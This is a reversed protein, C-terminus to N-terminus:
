IEDKDFFLLLEKIWPLQSYRWGTGYVLMHILLKPCKLLLAALSQQLSKLTSNIEEASEALRSKIKQRKKSPSRSGRPRKTGVRSTSSSSNDAGAHVPPRKPGYTTPLTDSDEELPGEYQPYCNLDYLGEDNDSDDSDITCTHQDMALSGDASTGTFLEQMEYYFKIPKSLLRRARDNLCSKESESITIVCRIDDFVNGSKSIAVAIYKWNEKYHRFHRDVQAITVGMAFKRNLADACKMLHHKRFRFGAHQEKMYEICWDLMFKTQDDAWSITRERSCGDGDAKGKGKAM